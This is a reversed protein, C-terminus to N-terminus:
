IYLIQGNPLFVQVFDMIPNSRGPFFDRTSSGKTLVLNISDFISIVTNFSYAKGTKEDSIWIADSGVFVDRPKLIRDPKVTWQNLTTDFKYVIEDDVDSKLFFIESNAKGGLFPKSFLDEPQPKIDKLDVWKSTDIVVDTDLSVGTLDVYFFYLGLDKRYYLKDGIVLTFYGDGGEFFPFCNVFNIYNFIILATSFVLKLLQM